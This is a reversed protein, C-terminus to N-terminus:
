GLDDLPSGPVYVIASWYERGEPTQAFKFVGSVPMDNRVAWDKYGEPIGNQEAQTEIHELARRHAVADIKKLESLRLSRVSM